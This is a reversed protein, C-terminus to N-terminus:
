QSNLDAAVISLPGVESSSSSSAELVAQEVVEIDGAEPVRNGDSVEEPTWSEIIAKESAMDIKPFMSRDRSSRYRCLVTQDSSVSQLLALCSSIIYGSFPHSVIYPM